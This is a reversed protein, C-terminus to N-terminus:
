WPLCAFVSVRSFPVRRDCREESGAEELNAATVVVHCTTEKQGGCLTFASQPCLNTRAKNVSKSVLELYGPSNEVHLFNRFIHSISMFSTFLESLPNKKKNILM